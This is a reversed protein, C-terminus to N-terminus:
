ITKNENESEIQVTRQNMSDSFKEYKEIRIDFDAKSLCKKSLIKSIHGENTGLLNRLGNVFDKTPMRTKTMPGVKSM